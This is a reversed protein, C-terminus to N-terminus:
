GGTKKSKRATNIKNNEQKQIAVAAKPRETAGITEIIDTAKSMETAITEPTDAVTATTMASGAVTSVGDYGVTERTFIMKTIDESPRAIVRTSYVVGVKSAAIRASDVAANVAGVDGTVKVTIMGDGRTLEYGILEVNASKAAADAAEVAALLGITEILGLAQKQM